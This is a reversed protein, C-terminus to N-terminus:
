TSSDANNTKSFFFFVTLISLFYFPSSKFLMGFTYSVILGACGWRWLSNNLIAGNVVFLVLVSCPILLFALHHTESMPSIMLISVMYVLFPLVRNSSHRQIYKRHIFMCGAVVITSSLVTPWFGRFVEPAVYKLFGGLTFFLDPQNETSSNSFTSLVVTQVYDNYLVILGNGAFLYPIILVMAFSFTITILIILPKREVILYFLFILPTLKIAIASALMLAAMVDRQTLYYYCFASCLCIVLFNVQGNLLNNQITNLFLLFVIFIPLFAKDKYMLWDYSLSSRGVSVICALATLLSGINILFWVANALWYPSLALPILLVPLYLPYIFTYPSGTHYPNTGNLLAKSSLLYSSFDYGGERNAKGYMQIFFLIVVVLTVLLVAFNVKSNHFLNMQM